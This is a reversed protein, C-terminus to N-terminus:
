VGKIGLEEAFILAAKEGVILATNYTNASVNTPVISMDAVKLNKVGYVNLRSDVVGNQDRPKMACTGLSHWTTGVFARHFTDIAEDDAASYVIDPADLAVPGVTRVCVAPSDEAFQPHDPAFEGRYGDMRRSIERTWKYSWRLVAVDDDTNLFGPEIALPTYPDSSVIHTRGTSSPYQTYYGVAYFNGQGVNPNEGCYGALPGMWMVPKDPNNAFFNAWRDAFAPGLSELDKANPRIKIGADVGNHAMMGKGQALFQDEFPKIDSDLGRFIKDMTVEDDSTHYANLLRNHDPAGNYNEGVGPLAVVEPIDLSKLLAPAGIGSRELIAPSGFAGGAVVILSGFASVVVDANPDGPAHSIYEVGVAKDGEIIVRKVRCHARVELNKNQDLQNYIYHHAVDSRHGTQPSMYRNWRTLSNTDDTTGREPDRATAVDLFQTGIRIGTHEVTSVKIPGSTGHNAAATDEYSEAKNSLPTLDEAGWGPNGLDRWDDYDSPSARTYIMFNVSSGGGMAKASPLLYPRNGLAKSPVTDHYTFSDGGGVLNAFYRGPQQHTKVDKTHKGAELILIKLTPDAAALRGAIICAATGGGAFIIDYPAM